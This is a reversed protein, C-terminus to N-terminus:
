KSGMDSFSNSQQKARYARGGWAWLYQGGSALTTAVMLVLLVTLLYSPQWWQAYYILVMGLYLIQFLTNAKGLLSPAFEYPGIWLRYAVAGSVIIIDRGLIIAAVWWALLDQSALVLVTAVMLLKDALPDVMAGFESTWNYRKALQGDIFDTIGAISFLMFATRYQQELMVLVLPPVLGIRLMTLLNPLQHLGVTAM